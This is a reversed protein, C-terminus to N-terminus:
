VARLAIAAQKVTDGEVAVGVSKFFKVALGIAQGESKAEKIPTAWGKETLMAVAEDKGLYSPLLSGLVANEEMLEARKPHDAPLAPRVPEGPKPLPDMFEKNNKIVSKVIAHGQEDTVPGTAAKQQVEGLVVKLVDKERSKFPAKTIRARLTDEFTM